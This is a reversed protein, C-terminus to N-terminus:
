SNNTEGALHAVVSRQHAGDRHAFLYIGQWTGLVMRGAVVPISLSTDTMACKIHSPMDDPGEYTHTYDPHNDPVVRNFHQLLDRRVSPAANETILLSASTHQIFLTVLGTGIRTERVWRAVDQTIDTTGRGRTAFTWTTTLHM